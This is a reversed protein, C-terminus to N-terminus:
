LMEAIWKCAAVVITAITMFVCIGTFCAVLIALAAFADNKDIMDNKM